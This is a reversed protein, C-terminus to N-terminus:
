RCEVSIFLLLPLIARASIHVVQALLSGRAKLAARTYIIKIVKIFLPKPFSYTIYHLASSLISYQSIELSTPYISRSYELLNVRIRKAWRTRLSRLKKDPIV